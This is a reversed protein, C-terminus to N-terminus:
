GTSSSKINAAANPLTMDGTNPLAARIGALKQEASYKPGIGGVAELIKDGVSHCKVFVSERMAQTNFFEYIQSMTCNEILTGLVISGGSNAAVLDFQSLVEHGTADPGYLARLAMAEIIAWSGGGDLTLIKYSM